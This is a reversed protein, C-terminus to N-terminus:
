CRAAALPPRLCDDGVGRNGYQKSSVCIAKCCCCCCHVLVVSAAQHGRRECHIALDEATMYHNKCQGCSYKFKSKDVANPDLTAHARDDDEAPAVVVRQPQSKKQKVSDGPKKGEGIAPATDYTIDNPRANISPGPDVLDYENNTSADNNSNNNPAVSALSMNDDTASADNAIRSSTHMATSRGDQADREGVSGREAVEVVDPEQKQGCMAILAAVTVMLVLLCGIAVVPQSDIAVIM